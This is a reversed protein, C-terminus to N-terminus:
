LSRLLSGRSAPGATAQAYCVVAEGPAARRRERTQPLGESTAILHALYPANARQLPAARSKEASKAPTVPVIARGTAIPAATKPAPAEYRTSGGTGTVAALRSM